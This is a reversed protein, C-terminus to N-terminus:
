KIMIPNAYIWPRKGRYTQLFVEARYVGPEKVLWILQQGKEVYVVEGNKLLRILAKRPVSVFLEVPEDLRIVAGPMFREQGRRAAFRFGASNTLGDYAVFAQGQRLANTIVTKDHTFEGTFPEETLIHTRILRFAQRYPLLTQTTGLISASFAHADAGGIGVCRGHQSLQDWKQLVQPPPGDIALDPNFYVAFFRLLSSVDEEWDSLYNWIELGTLDPALDWETWPAPSNGILDSAADFPHAAFTLNETGPKTLEKVMHKMTDRVPIEALGYALLHNNTSGRANLEAGVLLLSNNHWSEDGQATLTNHDTLILFDLGAQNAAKMIEEVTGSGDSHRSHAHIVGVYESIRDFTTGGTPLAQEYPWWLYAGLTAVLLVFLVYLRKM